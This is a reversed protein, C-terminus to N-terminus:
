WLIFFFGISLPLATTWCFVAFTQLRRHRPVLLPAFRVLFCLITLEDNDVTCRILARQRQALTARRPTSYCSVRSPPPLLMHPLQSHAHQSSADYKIHTIKSETYDEQRTGNETAGMKVLSHPAPLLSLSATTRLAKLRAPAYLCGSTSGQANETPCDLCRTTWYVNERKM